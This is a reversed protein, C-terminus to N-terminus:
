PSLIYHKEIVYGKINFDIGWSQDLLNITNDYWFRKFCPSECPYADYKVVRKKKSIEIDTPKGMKLIVM